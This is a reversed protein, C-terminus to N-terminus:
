TAADACRLAVRVLQQFRGEGMPRMGAKANHVYAFALGRAPDAFAGMGRYGCHGFAGPVFRGALQIGHYGLRWQPSLGMVCDHGRCQVEQLLAVTSPSLVRVGDLEGDAVLMAYVRALSRATFLGTSSLLCARRLRPDNWSPVRSAPLVLAARVDDLSVRGRSLRHAFPHAIGLAHHGITMLERPSKHDACRALAQEPAGFYAGDLALPEVLRERLLEAIPKGGIRQILAGLVWSYTIGHYGSSDEPLKAPTAREIREAMADFDLVDWFDDILDSLRHLGARHSLV